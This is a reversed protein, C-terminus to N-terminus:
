LSATKSPRSIPRAALPDHPFILLYMHKPRFFIASEVKLVQISGITEGKTNLLFVPILRTNLLIQHASDRPDCPTGTLGGGHHEEEEARLM